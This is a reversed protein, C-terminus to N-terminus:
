TVEIVIFSVGLNHLHELGNAIQSAYKCVDAESILGPHSTKPPKEVADSINLYFGYNGNKDIYYYYVKLNIPFSESGKDTLCLPKKAQLVAQRCSHLHKKLNGHCAYEMIIYVPGDIYYLVM